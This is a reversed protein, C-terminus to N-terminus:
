HPSTEPSGATALAKEKGEFYDTLIDVVTPGLKRRRAVGEVKLKKLLEPPLYITIPKTKSVM